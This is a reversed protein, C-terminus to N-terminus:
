GGFRQDKAAVPWRLGVKALGVERVSGTFLGLKM